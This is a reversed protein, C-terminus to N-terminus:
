RDHVCVFLAGHVNGRVFRIEFVIGISGNRAAAFRRKGDYIIELLTKRPIEGLRGREIQLDRDVAIGNRPAHREIEGVTQLDARRQAIKEEIDFAIREVYM